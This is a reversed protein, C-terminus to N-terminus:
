CVPQQSQSMGLAAREAWDKRSLTDYYQALHHSRKKSDLRARAAVGLCVDIHALAAPYSWMGVAAAELAHKQLASTWAMM